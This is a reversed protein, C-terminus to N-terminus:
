EDPTEAEDKNQEKNARIDADLLDFFKELMYYFNPDIAKLANQITEIMDRSSVPTDFLRERYYSGNNEKASLVVCNIFLKGLLQYQKDDLDITRNTNILNDSM